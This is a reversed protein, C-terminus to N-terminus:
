NKDQRGLLPELWGPTCECHADLFTLVEGQGAFNKKLQSLLGTCAIIHCFSFYFSRHFCIAKSSFYSSSSVRMKM